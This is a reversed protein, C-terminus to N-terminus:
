ATWVNASCTVSLFLDLVLKDHTNHFTYMCVSVGPGVGNTKRDIKFRDRYERIKGVETKIDRALPPPLPIAERNPGDEAPEQKIRQEYTDLLSDEGPAPPHRDDEEKLEARIDEMADPDMPMQGLKLNPLVTPANRDTNASGPNHGPIGEDEAPIDFDNGSRALMAGLSRDSAAITREATVVHVHTSILGQIVVGGQDQKSELFQILSAYAMASLSLRYKVNEGRYTKGLTSQHVHPPETIVQLQRLEDSHERQFRPSHEHFFASLAEPPCFELVLGFYSQIFVPWLLRVLEPRYVELSDDVYNELLGLRGNSVM